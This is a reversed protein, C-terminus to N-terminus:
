EAYYISPYEEGEPINVTMPTIVLDYKDKNALGSVFVEALGRTSFAGLVKLSAGWSPYDEETVLFVRHM